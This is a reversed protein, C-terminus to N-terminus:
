KLGRGFSCSVDSFTLLHLLCVRCSDVDSVVSKRLSAPSSARGAELLAGLRAPVMPMGYHCPSINQLGKLECPASPDENPECFCKNDPFEQSPAFISDPPTYYGASIGEKDVSYRYQLPFARCLDKDYIAVLDEHTIDRPPFFSGAALVWVPM